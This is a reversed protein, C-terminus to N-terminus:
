PSGTPPALPPSSWGASAGSMSATRPRKRVATRGSSSVIQTVAPSRPVGWAASSATNASTPRPGDDSRAANSRLGSGAAVVALTRSPNATTSSPSAM